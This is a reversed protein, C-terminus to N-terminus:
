SINLLMAKFKRKRARSMWFHSYTGRPGNRLLLKPVVMEGQTTVMSARMGNTNGFGTWTLLLFPQFLPFATSSFDWCLQYTGDTSVVSSYWHWASEEYVKCAHDQKWVHSPVRPGRLDFAWQNDSTSACPARLQWGEQKLLASFDDGKFCRSFLSILSSRTLTPYCKADLLCHLSLPSLGFCKTWTNGTTQM